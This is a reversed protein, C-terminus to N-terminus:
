SVFINPKCRFGHWRTELAATMHGKGPSVCHGSSSRNLHQVHQWLVDWTAHGTQLCPLACRACKAKIFCTIWLIKITWTFYSWRLGMSPVNLKSVSFTLMNTDRISKKLHFQWYKYDLVCLRTWFHIVTLFCSQSSMGLDAMYSLQFNQYSHFLYWSRKETNQRKSMRVAWTWKNDDLM